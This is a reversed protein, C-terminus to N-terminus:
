SIQVTVFQRKDREWKYCQLGRIIGDTVSVVLHLADPFEPEGFVTQAERDTDSFFADCDIHSHYFAMVRQGRREAESCIRDAEVRDITFATRGDRPYREPDEAHLRNQINRCMHVSQSSGEGTVLGCCEYPYEGQAHKYIEDLVARGLKM